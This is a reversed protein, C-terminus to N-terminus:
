SKKNLLPHYDGVKGIPKTNRIEFVTQISPKADALGFGGGALIDQYLLTHLDTFGGSFELEDGEISISRFTRQGKDKIVQPIDEYDVSLFWRVRARELRLYGAAKCAESVHVVNEKLDGFIWLLMDFFHVGINTAVGGSKQVDGKWSIFYWRGRSTIYTLDIDYIKDKPGQEIKKKLAIISPHLRLQLINFVKRGTEKEIEQLAEVNWPNLVIPKECIADAGQRLAFRIHSDHLYNPTCISVYDIKTGQRKLKDFHRDFREYETFFDADPFYSDIIGVCDYKDLSAILNNGTEKIAKLHRPAIYGAVGILGFNKQM